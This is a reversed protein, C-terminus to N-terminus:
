VSTIIEREVRHWSFLYICPQWITYKSVLFGLKLLNKLAKYHYLNTYDIPWKSYIVVIQCIKHDNPLKTAIQYM